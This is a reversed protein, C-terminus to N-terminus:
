HDPAPVQWRFRIEQPQGLFTVVTEREKTIGVAM